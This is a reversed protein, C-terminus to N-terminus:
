GFSTSTPQDPWRTSNSTLFRSSRTAQTYGIGDRNPTANAFQSPTVGAASSPGSSISTANLSTTSGQTSADAGAQLSGGFLKGQSQRTAPVDRRGPPAKPLDRVSGSFLHPRVKEGVFPGSVRGVLTSAAILSAGSGSGAVTIPGAALATASLTFSVLLSKLARLRPGAIFGM